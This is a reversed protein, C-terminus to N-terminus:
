TARLTERFQHASNTNKQSSIKSGHPTVAKLCKTNIWKLPIKMVLFEVFEFEMSVYKLKSHCITIISGEPFKNMAFRVRFTGQVIRFCYTM